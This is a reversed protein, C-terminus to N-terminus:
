SSTMSTFLLDGMYCRMLILVVQEKPAIHFHLLAIPLGEKWGPLVGPNHKKDSITVIPQNKRSKRFM